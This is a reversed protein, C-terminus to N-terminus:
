RAAARAPRRSQGLRRRLLRGAARRAGVACQRRAQEHEPADARGQRHHGVPEARPPRGRPRDCLGAPVPRARPLPAGARRLLRPRSLRAPRAPLLVAGDGGPRRRLGHAHRRSLAGAQARSIAPGHRPLPVDLRGRHEEARAVRVPNRSRGHGGPAGNPQDPHRAGHLEVHRRRGPREVAGDSRRRLDHRDRRLGGPRLRGQVAAVAAASPSRSAAAAASDAAALDAAKAAAIRSIAAKTATWRCPLDGLDLDDRSRRYHRAILRVMAVQFMM